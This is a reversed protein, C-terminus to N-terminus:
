MGLVWAVITVDEEKTLVCTPGMKMNWTNGNLHNSFFSFPINWFRSAKKLSRTGREIVEMAEELSQRDMEGKKKELPVKNIVQCPQRTQSALHTPVNDQDLTTQDIVANHWRHPVNFMM